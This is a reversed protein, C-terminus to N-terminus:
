EENKLTEQSKNQQNNQQPQAPKKEPIIEPKNNLKNNLKQKLINVEPLVPSEIELNGLIPDGDLASRAEDDHIIGATVLEVVSDSKIKLVQSKEQESMDLLSPFEYQIKENIGCTKALVQDLVYLPNTLQRQQEAAVQMVYNKMDSEGTANMGLPSQGWFRTAPINAAASLRRASRDIIEPLGAFSIDVRQYEDDKDMFLTRYVSRGITVAQMREQITMDADGQGTVAEAFDQIKNIPISAENVMHAVSKSINSDQMIEVVVPVLSSVGWDMNYSNWGMQSLAKIGDFRLVRSAHIEITGGFRLHITYIEPQGYLRSTYDLIRKKIMCDFRDVALLSMLDGQLLKDYNLPETLPAEKTIIAVIGTGFLRSAKMARNLRDEILYRKEAEQIREINENEMETFERWRIFMDDVPIDIFKKAAWSEVYITEMENRSIIFTPLFFGYSGKDISTGAGTLNNQFGGGTLGGLNSAYADPTNDKLRKGFVEMNDPVLVGGSTKKYSM